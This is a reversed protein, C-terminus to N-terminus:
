KVKLEKKKKYWFYLVVFITSILPISAIALNGTFASLTYTITLISGFFAIISAYQSTFQKLHTMFMYLRFNMKKIVELEEENINNLVDPNEYYIGLRIDYKGKLEGSSILLLIAEQINKKKIKLEENLFSITIFQNAVAKITMEIYSKIILQELIKVKENLIENFNVIFKNFDDILYKNKTEFDKSEKSFSKVQTNIEKNIEKIENEIRKVRKSIKLYARKFFKVEVDDGVSRELNGLLQSLLIKKDNIIEILEERITDNKINNIKEKFLEINSDYIKQFEKKKSVFFERLEPSLKKNEFNKELTEKLKTEISEQIQDIKILFNKNKNDFVEEIKEKDDLINKFNQKFEIQLKHYEKEILKQIKIYFSINKEINVITSVQNNISSLFFKETKIHEKRSTTIKLEELKKKFLDKSITEFDKLDEIRNQLELINVGLTKNKISSDYLALIKGIAENNPKLIKNEIFKRLEINKYYHETHLLICKKDEFLEANIRSIEIMDKIRSILVKCNLNLDKKLEVIDINNTRKENSISNIKNTIINNINEDKFNNIENCLYENFNDWQIITLNTKEEFNEIGVKCNYLKKGYDQTVQEFLSEISETKKIVDKIKPNKLQELDSKMNKLKNRIKIINQNVFTDFEEISVRNREEKVKNKLNQVHESVFELIEKELEDIREPLYKLLLYLKHKSKIEKKVDKQLEKIEKIKENLLEDTESKIDNFIKKIEFENENLKNKVKESINSIKERTDDRIFHIKDLTYHFYQFGEIYYAFIEDFNQKIQLWNDIIKKHKRKIKGERTTIKQSVKYIKQDFQRFRQTIKDFEQTLLTFIHENYEKELSNKFYDRFEDIKKIMDDKISAIKEKLTDLLSNLSKLEEKEKIKSQLYLELDRLKTKLITYQKKWSNIEPSLVEQLNIYYLEENFSSEINENLFEADMLTNHILYKIREKAIEIEDILLYSEIEEKTKSIATKLKLVMNYITNRHDRLKEKEVLLQEYKINTDSVIIKEIFFNLYFLYKTKIFSRKTRITGKFFNMNMMENILPLIDERLKLTATAINLRYHKFIDSLSIISNNKLSEYIERIILRKGESLNRLYNNFEINNDLIRLNFTYNLNIYSIVEQIGYNLGLTNVLQELNIYKDQELQKFLIREIEQIFKKWILSLLITLRSLDMMKILNIDEDLIEKMKLNIFSYIGMPNYDLFWSYNNLVYVIWFTTNVQGLEKKFSFGKDLKQFQYLFQIDKDRVDSDMELFKLCLLKLAISPEKKLDGVYPVFLQRNSRVDIGLLTYIELVYYLTIHYLNKKEIMCEKDLCHLYGNNKKHALVFQNLGDRININGKHSLYEKLLGLLKLSALAFYTSWIDPNKQKSKPHLKFGIIDGQNLECKNIFKYFEDKNVDKDEKLYKRLLLFWYVNELNLNKDNLLNENFYNYFKVVREYESFYFNGIEKKKKRTFSRFPEKKFTTIYPYASKNEIITM